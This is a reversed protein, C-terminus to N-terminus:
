KSLEQKAVSILFNDLLIKADGSVIMFEVGFERRAVWRIKGLEVPVPTQRGPILIQLSVPDGVASIPSGEIACGGRSLNFTQGQGPTGDVVYTVPCQVQFRVDKRAMM